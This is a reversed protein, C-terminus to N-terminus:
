GMDFWLFLQLCCAFAVLVDVVMRIGPSRTQSEKLRYLVVCIYIFMLITIMCSAYICLLQLGFGGSGSPELVISVFPICVLAVHMAFLWFTILLRNFRRPEAIASSKDTPM